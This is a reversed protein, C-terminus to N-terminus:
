EGTHGTEMLQMWKRMIPQIDLQEAREAVRKKYKEYLGSDQLLSLMAQSLMAEEREMDGVENHRNTSCVPTLIGYKAYEVSEMNQYTFHTDPALIERAGTRFDTAICPLGCILAECLANPYGEFLSPMVYVNCAHLIQYPNQQFHLLLVSEELSYLQILDNLYERDTGEGMIILKADSYKKRVDAFARILHWQGKQYELRGMNVYVFSDKLFENIERSAIPANAKEMLQRVNFANYIVHVKEQELHLKDILEKQIGKSVAVVADAHKYLIAAIPLVLWRFLRNNIDQYSIHVTLIVKCHKRGSLVNAFNASEMFSICSQYRGSKKEKLLTFFRKLFVKAQFGPTMKFGNNVGITQIEGDFPYDNEYQRNLIVTSEVEKPFNLSMNSLVREAGGENLYSIVFLVKKM